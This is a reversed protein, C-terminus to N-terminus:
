CIICCSGQDAGRNKHNLSNAKEALEKSIKSADLLEQAEKNREDQRSFRMQANELQNTSNTLQTTMKDFNNSAETEDNSEQRKVLMNDTVASTRRQLSKKDPELPGLVYLPQKSATKKQVKFREDLYQSFLHILTGSAVIFLSIKGWNEKIFYPDFLDFIASAVLHVLRSTAAGSQKNLLMIHADTSPLNRAFVKMM